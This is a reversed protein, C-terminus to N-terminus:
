RSTDEVTTIINDPFTTHCFRAYRYEPLRLSLLADTLLTSKETFQDNAFTDGEALTRQLFTGYNISEIAPLFANEKPTYLKGVTNQTREYYVIQHAYDFIQGLALQYAAILDLASQKKYNKASSNLAVQLDTLHDLLPNTRENVYSWTREIHIYPSRMSTHHIHIDAEYAKHVKEGISILTAHTNRLDGTFACPNPPPQASATATLFFVLATSALLSPHVVCGKM